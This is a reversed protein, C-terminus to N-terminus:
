LSRDVQAQAAESAAEIAPGALTFQGLVQQVLDARTAGRSVVDILGGVAADVHRKVVELLLAERAAGGLGGRVLVELIQPGGPGAGLALEGGDRVVVAPDRAGAATVEIVRFKHNEYVDVRFASGDLAARVQDILKM